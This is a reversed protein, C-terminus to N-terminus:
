PPRRLGDTYDLLNSCSPTEQKRSCPAAGLSYERNSLPIEVPRVRPRIPQLQKSGHQCYQRPNSEPRDASRCPNSRLVQLRLAQQTLLRVRVARGRARRAPFYVVTTDRDTIVSHTCWAGAVSPTIDYRVPAAGSEGTLKGDEDEEKM